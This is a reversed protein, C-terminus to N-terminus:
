GDFSTGFIHFNHWLPFNLWIHRYVLCSVCIKLSGQINIAVCHFVWYLFIIIEVTNKKSLESLQFENNKYMLTEPPLTYAM